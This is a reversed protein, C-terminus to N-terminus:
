SIICQEVQAAPFARFRPEGSDSDEDVTDWESDGEENSEQEQLQQSIPMPRRRPDDSESDYDSAFPFLNKDMDENPRIHFPRDHTLLGFFDDRLRAPASVLKELDEFLLFSKLEEEIPLDLIGAHRGARIGIASSICQRCLDKLKPVTAAVRDAYQVIEPLCDRRAYGIDKFYKKKVCGAAALMKILNLDEELFAYELPSMYYGFYRDMTETCIAGGQVCLLYWPRFNGGDGDYIFKMATAGKMDEVWPDAGQELLYKFLQPLESTLCFHLCTKGFKPDGGEVSAGREVLLKVVELIRAEKADRGGPIFGQLAHIIPTAAKLDPRNPSAGADLLMRVIGTKLRHAAWMLPTCPHKRMAVEPDAGHHILAQVMRGDKDHEVAFLLPPGKHISHDKLPFRLKKNAYLTCRALANVDAGHKVLLDIMDPKNKRCAMHLATMGCKSTKRVDAGKEILLQALTVHGFYVACFLPLEDEANSGANVDVGPQALLLETVQQSGQKCAVHLALVGQGNSDTARGGGGLIVEVTKKDGSAAALLLVQNGQSDTALPDAGCQLLHSCM